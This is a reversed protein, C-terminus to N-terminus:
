RNLQDLEYLIVASAVVAATETRLVRKGLSFVIAGCDVATVIEQDTFGGEPGIFLALTHVENSRAQLIKRLNAAQVGCSVKRRQPSGILRCDFSGIKALADAFSVPADLQPIRGRGSQEAAETIISRWRSLKNLSIETRRVISRETIMPVFCTVGVETCKQLVLEFKERALLSQYLTVQIQPEAQNQQRSIVKGVVELRNVKKLEVTYECGTNDLVIIQEGSALRLVNHIQHAQRGTLVVQEGQFSQDTVFFRHM